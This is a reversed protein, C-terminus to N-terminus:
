IRDFGGEFMEYSGVLNWTMHKGMKRDSQKQNTTLRLRESWLMYTIWTFNNACM